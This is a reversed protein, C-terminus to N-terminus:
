MLFRDMWRKIHQLRAVRRDTRGNRSLGHEEEPFLVLEAEVGMRKLAVFIQEGQEQPCRLDSESHIVLTPTKAGGIFRMPSMQWYAAFDEWPNSEIGFLNEGTWSLDSSGYFSIANGVVRQAVATKFRDTRGILMSTMYGGYSGGTVGMRAPDIYPQATMYDAWAMVDDYDVTGWRGYIASAFADGYGQSGRPNCWYVVYGQAALYYFEHMFTRGYQVMPGGHIELISPYTKAPDFDPPFTIWGDLQGDGGTFSVQEVRGLAIEALQADNFHTLPRSDGTAMDRLWIQGLHTLDGWLYAMQSQERDFTFGAILGDGGVITEANEGDFAILHQSGHTAAIAYVATGDLRWVPSAAAMGSGTDTSTIASSLHLDFPQSWNKAQEDGVFLCNNQQPHRARARGYYALRGDPAYAPQFKRGDRAAVPTIEGGDAPITYLETADLQLDPDDSRNSVFLIHSGDPSWIPTEEHFHGNTLQVAAGSDADVTWIHWKEAPLYGAGNVKYTLSTIHRAVVGLKKAQEDSERAIAEADKQRFSLLLRDGDPSLSFSGFSGQLDTLQRADGGDLSLTYLQSQKADGRNSLFHILRGNIGWRPQSDTHDGHTLPRPDGDTTSVLWLNTYKKETARDVRQVTFVVWAGDPSLQPDSVLKFHYLDDATLPRKHTNM